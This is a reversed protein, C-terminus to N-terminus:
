ELSLLHGNAKLWQIHRPYDDIMKDMTAWFRQSHNREIRHALEHIVVYDIVPLPAMVLRWTFSITGRFSCSGWRTRASSIRVKQFTLNYISAYLRVRENMVQRAKNKYWNLFIEKADRQKNQALLFRGDQLILPPQQRDVITLPYAIGLFIFMEDNIYQKSTKQALRQLADAQKAKIWVAKLEIIDQIQANTAHKPARILLQGDRQIIIAITKRQSRIIKDIKIENM